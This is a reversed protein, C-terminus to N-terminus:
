DGFLGKLNFWGELMKRSSSSIGTMVEKFIVINSQRLESLNKRIGEYQDDTLIVSRDKLANLISDLDKVFVSVIRDKAGSVRAEPLDKLLKINKEIGKIATEVKTKGVTAVAQASSAGRQVAQGFDPISAMAGSGSSAPGLKAALMPNLGARKMDAMAREYGTGTQSAQFQMQKDASAQSMRASQLSGYLSAAAGVYPNVVSLVPAAKQVAGSVASWIGM